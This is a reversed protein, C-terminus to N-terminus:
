NTIEVDIYTLNQAFDIVAIGGGVVTGTDKITTAGETFFTNCPIEVTKGGVADLSYTIRYFGVGDNMKKVNWNYGYIVKGPINIEASYISALEKGLVDEADWVASNYLTAGLDAGTWEGAVADWAFGMDVNSRPLGTAADYPNVELKQITYRAVGSYVTAENSLYTNTNTGWIEETGEGTLWMMEYGTMPAASIDQYLIVETRVISRISWPHAELNDSWDITTVDVGEPDGNVTAAQWENLLDRQYFWDVGDISMSVGDFMEVGFTGRLDKTIGESWIVPLSLCNAVDAVPKAAAAQEPCSVAVIISVLLLCMINMKSMKM